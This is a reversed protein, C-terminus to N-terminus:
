TRIDKDTSTKIKSEKKEKMSYNDKTRIGGACSVLLYGEEENDLNILIKWRYTRTVAMAGSMGTEEDTTILVELPQIYLIMQLLYQWQM